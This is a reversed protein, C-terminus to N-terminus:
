QHTVVRLRQQIELSLDKWLLIVKYLVILWWAMLLHSMSLLASEHLRFCSQRRVEMLDVKLHLMRSSWLVMKQSLIKSLVAKLLSIMEDQLAVMWPRIEEQRLIVDILFIAKQLLFAM